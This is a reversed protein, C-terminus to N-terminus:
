ILVLGRERRDPFLFKRYFDRTKPDTSPSLDKNYKKADKIYDIIDQDKTLGSKKAKRYHYSTKNETLDLIEALGKLTVTILGRHVIGTLLTKAM